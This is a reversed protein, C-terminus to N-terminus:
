QISNGDSASPASVPAGVPWASAPPGRIIQQGMQCVGALAPGGELRSRVRAHDEHGARLAVVAVIAKRGLPRPLLGAEALVRPGSVTSVSADSWMAALLPSPPAGWTPVLASSASPNAEPWRMSAKSIRPRAHYFGYFGPRCWLVHLSFELRPALPAAALGHMEMGATCTPFSLKLAPSTVHTLRDQVAVSPECLGQQQKRNTLKKSM